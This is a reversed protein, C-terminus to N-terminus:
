FETLTLRWSVQAGWNDRDIDWSVVIMTLFPRYFTYDGETRVSGDTPTRSFTFPGGTKFSLETVCAVGVISGAWLGDLAPPSPASGTIDLMFKRMQPASIDVVGGNVARPFKDEGQAESIPALKGRVNIASYPNIGPGSGDFLLDFETVSAIDNM